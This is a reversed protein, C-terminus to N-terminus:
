YIPYKHTAECMSLVLAARLGGNFSGFNMRYFLAQRHLSAPVSLDNEQASISSQLMDLIGMQCAKKALNEQNM